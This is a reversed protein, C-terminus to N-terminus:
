DYLKSLFTWVLNTVFERNDTIVAHGANPVSIVHLSELRQSLIDIDIDRHENAAEPLTARLLLVPNDSKTVRSPEFSHMLTLGDWAAKVSM